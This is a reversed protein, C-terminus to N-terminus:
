WAYCGHGDWSPFKYLHLLGGLVTLNEPLLQVCEGSPVLMYVSETDSAFLNRVM